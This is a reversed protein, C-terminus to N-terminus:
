FLENLRTLSTFLSVENKPRPRLQQFNHTLAAFELSQPASRLDGCLGEWYQQIGFDTAVAQDDDTSRWRAGSRLGSEDRAPKICGIWLLCKAVKRCLQRRHRFQKSINETLPRAIPRM